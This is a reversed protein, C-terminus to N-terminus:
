VLSKAWERVKDPERYDVVEPIEEGPPLEESIIRKLLKRVVFNHQKLDIKGPVLATSIPNLEPNDQAIKDLFNVQAEECKNKSAAYMCVAFLAVKKQSLADINKKIFELPQKTWNGAMIGSGIVILDYNDVQDPIRDDKLNVVDVLAGSEKMATAMMEAMETTTGKRTGYCILVRENM